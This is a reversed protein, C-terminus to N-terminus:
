GYWKQSTLSNGGCSLVGNNNSNYLKACLPVFILKCLRKFLEIFIYLLQGLMRFCMVILREQFFIHMVGGSDQALSIRPRFICSGVKFSSLPNGPLSNSM